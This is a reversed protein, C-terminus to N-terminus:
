NNNEKKNLMKKYPKYQETFEDKIIKRGVEFAEKIEKGDPDVPPDLVLEVGASLETSEYNGLNLKRTPWLMIKSIKVSM